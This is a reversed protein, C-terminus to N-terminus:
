KILITFQKSLAKYANTAPASSTLKCKGKKLAKVQYNTVKCVRAPKAKWTLRVGQKTTKAVKVKKGKRVKAPPAKM